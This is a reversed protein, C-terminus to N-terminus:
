PNVPISITKKTVVVESHAPQALALLSVGAALAATSYVRLNRDISTPLITPALRASAKRLMTVRGAQSFQGALSRNDLHFFKRDPEIFCRRRSLANWRM